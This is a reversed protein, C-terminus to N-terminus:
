PGTPIVCRNSAAKNIAAVAPHSTRGSPAIVYFRQTIERIHGIIEVGYQRQIQAEILTSTVFIGAGAQGFEEMLATDEFEGSIAPVIGHKGFWRELAHRLASQRTPLLMPAGHLSEPFGDRYAQAYTKGAYFTSGSEGVLHEDLSQDQTPEVPRDALVMDLDQSALEKLLRNLDGEYCAIQIPENMRRIPELMWYAIPKPLVDAIGVNLRMPGERADGNLIAVLEAGLAFIRNAYDFVLRGRDTLKLRHNLRTFLAEGVAAELAAVQTSITQPTLCLIKAARGIGGEKAVVWFHHLHKYNLRQM